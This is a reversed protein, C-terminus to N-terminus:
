PNEKMDLLATALRLGLGPSGSFVAQPRCSQKRRRLRMSRKKLRALFECRTAVRYSLSMSLKAAKTGSAQM